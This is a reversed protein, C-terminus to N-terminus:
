TRPLAHQTPDGAPTRHPLTPRHIGCVPGPPGLHGNSMPAGALSLRDGGIISSETSQALGSALAALQHTEEGQHGAVACALTDLLINKCYERTRQPIDEYKLASAFQALVATTEGAM